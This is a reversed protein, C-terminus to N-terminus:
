ADRRCMFCASIAKPYNLLFNIATKVAPPREMFIFYHLSFTPNKHFDFRIKPIARGIFRVKLFLKGRITNLIPVSRRMYKSSLYSDWWNGLFTEFDITKRRYQIPPESLLDPSSRVREHQLRHTSRARRNTLRPRRTGSLVPQASARERWRIKNM